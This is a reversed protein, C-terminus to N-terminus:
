IVIEIGEVTDYEKNAETWRDMRILSAQGRITPESFIDRILIRTDFARNIHNMLATAKLSHGGMDFFNATVSVSSKETQFLQAWIAALKEEIEDCPPEYAAASFQQIDPLLKKNVKGNATLPMATLHIFHAPVMYDPLNAQLFNKLAATDIAVDSVYYAALYKDDNEEKVLVVAEAIKGHRALQNEIEGLTIRFGRMKVQDDTRGKFEVTLDPMLRALDNTKYLKGEGFPNDIFKESTLEPNNLYGNSVGDGGVYLIGWAGIPKINLQGDLIYATSNNIPKGIPVSQRYDKEIPMTLSFTTNETPGYGNVIRLDPNNNRVISVHKCSVADGGIVLWTLGSFINRRSQQVLQNFYATTLWMTNIDNRVLEAHLLESDLLVDRDALNLLGGNLLSGWIEFTTADFTPAGTLLIRTDPSLRVYNTNCVLRVVNRHTVMVGKPNGTSGSTFIIYALDNHAPHYPNAFPINNEVTEDAFLLERTAINQSNDQKKNLSAALMEPDIGSEEMSKKTTLIIGANIDDLLWAIRALPDQLSLPVYVCGLKLIAIVSVIYDIDMRQYVGINMQPKSGADALRAALANARENLAKYTINEDNYVIATNDPSKRAQEEFLAAISSDSPYPARTNNFVNLVTHQEDASLASINKLKQDPQQLCNRLLIQYGHFIREIDQSHYVSTDFSISCTLSDKRHCFNFVLEPSQETSLLQGTHISSLTIGINFLKQQPENAALSKALLDVPYDQNIRAGNYTRGVVTLLERFSANPDVDIVLPLVNNIAGADPTGETATGIAVTAEELFKNIQVCLAATLMVFLSGPEHCIQALRVRIDEDMGYERTEIVREATLADVFCSPFFLEKRGASLKETWYKKAGAKANFAILRRNFLISATETM